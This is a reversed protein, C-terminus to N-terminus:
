YRGKARLVFGREGRREEQGVLGRCDPGAWRDARVNTEGGQSLSPKRPLKETGNGRGPFSEVEAGWLSKWSLCERAGRGEGM